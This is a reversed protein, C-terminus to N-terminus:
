ALVSRYGQIFEQWSVPRKGELQVQELVLKGKELHAKLIKLRKVSEQNRIGKVPVRTWTGPWPSFARIMREIELAPKGGKQIAFVVKKWDVFGDKKTLLKTYTARKHDQPRPKIEGKIWRPITKILLEAGLKALDESLEEYTIKKNSIPFQRGRSAEAFHPSGRSAEAFHPANSIIPGHDVKEDMLFITVGTEKEGNLIASQIPTPGRYKPLLSPHVGLCGYKPMKLIEKPLIKGFAAVVILEPKLKKIIPIIATSNTYDFVPIKHKRALVKVPSPTLIKKRGVPKDPQTVVGNVMLWQDNIMSELITAAFKPTGFFVLSIM